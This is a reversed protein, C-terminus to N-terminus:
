LNVVSNVPNTEADMDSSVYQLPILFHHECALDDAYWSYLSAPKIRLLTKNHRVTHRQANTHMYVTYRSVMLMYMHIYFYM